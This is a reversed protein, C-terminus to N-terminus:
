LLANEATVPMNGVDGGGLGDRLDDGGVQSLKVECVQAAFTIFGLEGFVEHGLLEVLETGRVDLQLDGRLIHWAPSQFHSKCNKLRLEEM